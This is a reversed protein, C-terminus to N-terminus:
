NPEKSNMLPIVLSFNVVREFNQSDNTLGHSIIDADDNFHVVM